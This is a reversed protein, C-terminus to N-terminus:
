ETVRVLLWRLRAGEPLSTAGEALRPGDYQGVLAIDGQALTIAVRSCAVQVGLLESYLAATTAHGVASEADAAFLAAVATTVPEVTLSWRREAPLMGLSFANVLWRM